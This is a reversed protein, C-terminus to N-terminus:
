APEGILYNHVKKFSTIITQLTAPMEWNSLMKNISFSTFVKNNNVSVPSRCEVDM